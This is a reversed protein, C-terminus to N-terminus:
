KYEPNLNMHIVKFSKNTLSTILDRTAGIPQIPESINFSLTHRRIFRRQRPLVDFSGNITIPVVPINLKAALSFPTRSFAGLHGNDSRRGEPFVILSLGEELVTKAMNYTAKVSSLCDKDVFISGANRCGSGFFPIKELERKMMWRKPYPLFGSLLFVDYYSCHNCVYIYQQNKKINDLGSISVPLLSYHIIGKGWIRSLRYMVKNKDLFLCLVSVSGFILM